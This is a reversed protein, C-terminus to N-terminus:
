DFDEMLDFVYDPEFGEEHLVEEPDEGNEVRARLDAIALKAESDTYRESEIMASYLKTKIVPNM